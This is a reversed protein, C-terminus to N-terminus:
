PGLRSLCATIIPLVKQDRREERRDLYFFLGGLVMVNFIVLALYQAPKLGGIAKEVSRGATEVTANV